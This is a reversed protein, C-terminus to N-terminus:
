ANMKEHLYVTNEILMATTMPGVGNPVPTIFSAKESVEKFMVDGKISGDETVNIGVDIVIAGEKVFDGRIYEAKGISVCLIDANACISKLNQTKSHTITVTASKELLLNFLPKGVINSRGVIVANAGEIKVKTYEILRMIGKPTCPVVYKDGMFLKGINLPSISDVDKYPSIALAINKENIHKPMPMQCLIASVNEDKNLSHILDIIEKEATNESLKHIVPKIGTEEAKKSANKFYVETSKDGELLLFDLRPPKELTEIKKKLCEIISKSIERGNLIVSM